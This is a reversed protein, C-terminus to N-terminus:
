LRGSGDCDGVHTAGSECGQVEGIGRSCGASDQRERHDGGGDLGGDYRRSHIMKGRGHLTVHSDASFAKPILAETSYSDLLEDVIAKGLDELLIEFQVRDVNRPLEAQAIDIPCFRRLVRSLNERTVPKPVFDDMGAAICQDRDDVFVDATLGVIPMTRGM